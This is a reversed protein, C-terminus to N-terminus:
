FLSTNTILLKEYLILPSKNEKETVNEQLTTLVALIYFSYTIKDWYQESCALLKEM